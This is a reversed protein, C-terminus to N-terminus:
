HRISQLQAVLTRCDVGCMVCVGKELKALARRIAGSSAQSSPAIAHKPQFLYLLQFLYYFIHWWRVATWVDRVHREGKELKALARRIAGSSAQSSSCLLTNEPYCIALM